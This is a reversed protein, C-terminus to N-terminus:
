ESDSNRPSFDIQANSGFVQNAQNMLSNLSDMETNSWYQRRSAPRFRELIDAPRTDSSFMMEITINYSDLTRSSLIRNAYDNLPFEAELWEVVNHHEYRKALAYALTPWDYKDLGKSKLWKGVRLQGYRGVIQLCMSPAMWRNVHSDLWQIAELLGYRCAYILTRQLEVGELVKLGDLVRSNLYELETENFPLKPITMNQEWVLDAKWQTWKNALERIKEENEFDKGYEERMAEFLGDLDSCDNPQDVKEWEGELMEKMNSALRQM